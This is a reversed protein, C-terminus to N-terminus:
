RVVAEELYCRLALMLRVLYQEQLDPLFIRRGLKQVGFVGWANGARQASDM